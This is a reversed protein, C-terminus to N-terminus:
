SNALKVEGDPPPPLHGAANNAAAMQYM